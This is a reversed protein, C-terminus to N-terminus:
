PRQRGARTARRARRALALEVLRDLLESYSTGSAEWLRPFMSIPTFGPITNVENVLFGRGDAELFFDVRAMAELRCADFARVALARAADADAPELPAPILLQAAGDEYKDAYDYFEGGPVIEGPVSADPPHEGLVAVEIEPRRDGGRRPDVRRLRARARDGRRARRPRPGQGGRGVIGHQGAERFVAHRARGRGPRRVHHRRPRRSPGAM